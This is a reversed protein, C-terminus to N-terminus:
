KKGGSLGAMYIEKYGLSEAYNVTLITPELFYRLAHDGRNEWQLFWWHDSNVFTDTSGPGINVGKLPMSLIFVDYGLDHFFDSVNYLDWWSYGPM